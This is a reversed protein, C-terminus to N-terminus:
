MNSPLAHGICVTKVYGNATSPAPAPEAAAAFSRTLQLDYQKIAYVAPAEQQAHVSRSLATFTRAQRALRAAAALAARRAGLMAPLLSQYGQQLGSTLSGMLIVANDQRVHSKFRCSPTPSLSM